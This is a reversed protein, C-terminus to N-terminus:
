NVNTYPAGQPKLVNKLSEMRRIHSRTIRTVGLVVGLAFRFRRPLFVNGTGILVGIRM